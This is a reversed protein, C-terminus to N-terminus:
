EYLVPGVVIIMQSEKLAVSDLSQCKTGLCWLEFVESKCVLVLREYCQSPIVNMDRFGM